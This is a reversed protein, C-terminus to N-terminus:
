CLNRIVFKRLHPRSEFNRKLLCLHKHLSDTSRLLTACRQLRAGLRAQGQLWDAMKLKQLKLM